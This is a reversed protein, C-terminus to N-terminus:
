INTYYLTDKQTPLYYLAAPHSYILYDPTTVGDVSAVSRASSPQVVAWAAM